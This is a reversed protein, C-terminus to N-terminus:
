KLEVKRIIAPFTNPTITNSTPDELAVTKGASISLQNRRGSRIIKGTYGSAELSEKHFIIDEGDHKGLYIAIGNITNGQDDQLIIEDGRYLLSQISANLRVKYTDDSFAVRSVGKLSIGMGTNKYASGMGDYEYYAPHNYSYVPDDFNNNVRSLVPNGTLKDWKLHETKVLSGADYAEISQLIGSRFIVKNTVITNLESKDEGVNPWVSPIPIVGFIFLVNFDTNINVGGEWSHDKHSRADVFCEQEQGFYVKNISLDSKEVDTLTSITQDENDKMLNRLALVQNKQYTKAETMYNYKVWSIPEQEISGESKQRFHSIKKPKGHMDNTIIIYGQSSSLKASSVTGLFPVPIVSKHPKDLKDTEMSIVPFDKATYFEHVSEGSTGYTIGQGQPFLGQGDSLTVNLVVLGELVASALSKVTVSSYGIQPGPYYQENVPFESFLNNDSRLPVSETYKRAYRLANEEGGIVPENLAVGSSIIEGNEETTYQYVQGYIGEEDDDWNDFVTLQKVRLGGGYKIKDPSKLRIWSKGITLERGWDHNSCYNNFGSFMQKVQPIVSAMGKINNIIDKDSNVSKLPKAISAVDPENVRLHQWARLSIPHRGDEKLLHFYGYKYDGSGDALLGMEGAMDIDAYGSIFEEYDESPSRLNVLTRFYLQKTDIDLYKLVEDRQNEVESVKLPKELPFYVKTDNDSLTVKGSPDNSPDAVETMQMAQRHQVYGYDDTEYDVIIKGGSPLRIERLSWSAANADIEDKKMPNQEVFPFDQNYMFDGSPYPKFNGWRDYANIDYSPNNQHYTFAYPNLSGKVSNGYEFWVKKLTLKGTGATSNFVGKCLSYDYEFKVKKIPYVPGASRTYLIIEDLRRLQKGLLNDDQLANNAGRADARNTTIFEAVHSRTEAKQLYWIDKEGYTYMGRDDQAKNRLGRQYIAKSFPTRWKYYDGDNTARQYTFKVWYGLDDESVGDGTRDVYDSGVISSLLYSHAYAPIETKDLFEDTNTHMYDPLGSGGLGVNTRSSSSNPALASFQVEEQLYNYAPIAYVYRLGDPTTVSMGALHNSPYDARNLEENGNQTNSYQVKYLDILEQSGNLLEENTIPLIVQGRQKRERNDTSNSPVVTEGGNAIEFSAELVPNENTGTMKVRVPSEDGVQNFFHSLESTKEGHVKFYWPEYPDDIERSEFDLRNLLMNNESWLGSTSKAMNVSANLGVHFAAPAVEIGLSKASTVSERYPDHIMGIENRFPRYMASIGQGNVTYIDYTLSPIPLNPIENTIFGDKERNLDLVADSEIAYEYNMYGYAPVSVPIKNNKLKQENYFGNIYPSGFIGWWAGGVKAKFSVSSNEMPLSIQPTNAYGALSISSSSGGKYINSGKVERNKYDIGQTSRSVSFGMSLGQLGQQSNYGAGLSTSASYTGELKRSLSLSPSLSVGEQSSLSFGLGASLGSNAAIPYGVSGDISYGIGKYNNNLVSFGIGLIDKGYIEVSGGAGVGLTKSPKMSMTKVIKDNDGRFEDPLGRMQRTIAGPNLNWGLGVWSAEQDMSIGSQYGLNFPYGGNPGPLEFLPINYSFDGSFLDVMESSGASTFSQFEPQGPGSTLGYVLSPHISQLALLFTLFFAIREPRKNRRLFIM